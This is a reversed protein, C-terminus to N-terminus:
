NLLYLAILPHTPQVIILWYFLKEDKKTFRRDVERLWEEILISDMCSKKRSRHSCLLHKIHKFCQPKKSKGIVFLSLKEGIANAATLGTLHLKSPKDGFCNETKLQLSKNPQADFEDANYIQNLDYNSLITPLTTQERPAVMKDTCANSKGSVTKFSVNFQKKWHDLWGDM